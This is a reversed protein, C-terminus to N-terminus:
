FQVLGAYEWVNSTDVNLWLGRTYWQYFVLTGDGVKRGRMKDVWQVGM